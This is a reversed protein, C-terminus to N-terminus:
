RSLVGDEWLLDPLRRYGARRCAPFVSAFAEQVVKALPGGEYFFKGTGPAPPSEGVLLLKIPLKPKHEKRVEEWKENVGKMQRKDSM